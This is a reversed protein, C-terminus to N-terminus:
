KLKKTKAVEIINYELGEGKVVKVGEGKITAIFKEAVAATVIPEPRYKNLYLPILVPEILNGNKIKMKVIASYKTAESEMDFVFNGLGYFIYKGKYLEIDQFLHTHSGIILDAGSNIIFRSFKKQWKQVPQGETGWHMYVVIFDVNKKAAELDNGIVGADAPVTGYKKTSAKFIEPSVQSYCLIGIKKGDVEFVVPLNPKGFRSKAVGNYRINNKDLLAMTQLLGNEKYDLAHNNALSLINYGAAKLGVAFGEQSYLYISKGALTELAPIGATYVIPTELNGFVIEGRSIFPAIKEFLYSYGKEAVIPELRRGAMLDGTFIAYKEKGWDANKEGGVTACGQLVSILIFGVM